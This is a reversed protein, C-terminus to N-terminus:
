SSWLYKHPQRTSPRGRSRPRYVGCHHHRHAAVVIILHRAAVSVVTVVIVALWSLAQVRASVALLVRCAQSCSLVLCRGGVNCLRRTRLIVSLASASSSRSATCTVLHSEYVAKDGNEYVHLHVVVQAVSTHRRRGCYTGMTTGLVTRSSQTMWGGVAVVHPGALRGTASATRYKPIDHEHLLRLEICM